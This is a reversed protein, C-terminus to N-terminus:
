VFIKEYEINNMGGLCNLYSPLVRKRHWKDDYSAAYYTDSLTYSINQADFYKKLFLMPNESYLFQWEWSDRVGPNTNKWRCCCMSVLSM